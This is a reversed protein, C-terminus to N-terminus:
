ENIRERRMLQPNFHIIFQKPNRVGGEQPYKNANKNEIEFRSMKNKLNMILKSMEEMRAEQSYKNPDYTGCKERAKKREVQDQKQRMKGYAIM